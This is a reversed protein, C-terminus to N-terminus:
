KELAKPELKSAMWYVDKLLPDRPPPCFVRTKKVNSYLLESTAHLSVRLCLIKQPMDRLLAIADGDCVLVTYLIFQPSYDTEVISASRHFFLHKLQQHIMLNRVRRKGLQYSLVIEFCVM